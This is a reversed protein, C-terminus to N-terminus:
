NATKRAIIKSEVSDPSGGWDYVYGGNVVTGEYGNGFIFVFANPGFSAHALATASSITYFARQFGNAREYNPAFLVQGREDTRETVEHSEGEASYNKYSLRANVGPLPKGDETVVSISWRPSALYRHPWLGWVMLVCAVTVAVKWRIDKKM